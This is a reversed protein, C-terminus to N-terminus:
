LEALHFAARRGVIVRQHDVLNRVRELLISARAVVKKIMLLDYSLGVLEEILPSKALRKRSGLLQPNREALLAVLRPLVIKFVGADRVFQVKGRDGSPLRRRDLVM